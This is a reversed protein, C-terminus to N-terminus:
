VCWERADRRELSTALLTEDIHGEWAAVMEEFFSPLALGREREWLLRITIIQEIEDPLAQPLIWKCVASTQPVNPGFLDAWVLRLQWRLCEAAFWPTGRRRLRACIQVIRLLVLVVARHRAYWERLWAAREPWEKVPKWYHRQTARILRILLRLDEFLRACLVASSARRLEDLDAAEQQVDQQSFLNPHKWGGCAAKHRRLQEICKAFIGPLVRCLLTSVYGESLFPGSWIGALLPFRTPLPETGAPAGLFLYGRLFTLLALLGNKVRQRPPLNTTTSM